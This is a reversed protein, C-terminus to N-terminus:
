GRNRSCLLNGDLFLMRWLGFLSAPQRLCRVLRSSSTPILSAVNGVCRDLRLPQPRYVIMALAM